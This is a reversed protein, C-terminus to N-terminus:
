RETQKGWRRQMTAMLSKLRHVYTHEAQVRRAAREIIGQRESLHVNYYAVKEALEEASAYMCVEDPAFLEFLDEQADTVVLSGAAPADFVRQNVASPMQLSTANICCICKRYIAALAPGYPVYPHQRGKPLVTRWDADGFVDLPVNVLSALLQKRYRGTATWTAYALTTMRRDPPPTAQAIASLFFRRDQLLATAQQRGAARESAKLLKGWKHEAFAMSSGVFGARLSPAGQTAFKQPDTALPLYTVAEAGLRRLIPVYSRDWVFVQSVQPAPLVYGDFLLFPSDVYWVAVPMEIADLLEGISNHADFGIHNITLVMDPRHVLLAKLLQEMADSAKRAGDVGGIKLTLVRHGLACLADRCEAHLHYDSDLLLVTQRLGSFKRYGLARHLPSQQPLIGM